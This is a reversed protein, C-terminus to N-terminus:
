RTALLENKLTTSGTIESIQTEKFCDTYSTPNANVEITGTLRKCSLFTSDMSTVSSPIVPATTLSSCGSFTEDMSTVSSPIVPATTLSSCGSFTMYMNTIGEPIAPATTLSSCWYFTEFMDTVGSPIAPATTLSSCWIFTQNMTTVSSPIVPATTLSDCSDFTNRMDVIPMEAIKSLIKGYTTKTKDKAIVSWGDIKCTYKYDGEEYIDENAPTDPFENTGNGELVTGDSKTYTAGNPIKGNRSIPENPTTQGTKDNIWENLGNIADLDSETAQDTKTQVDKAKNIIGNESFIANISVGALILLVVITIVLAILTIGKQNFHNTKSRKNNIKM